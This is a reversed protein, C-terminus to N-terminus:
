LFLPNNIDIPWKTELDSCFKALEHAFMLPSPLRNGKLSRWNLRTFAICARTFDKKQFKIEDKITTKEVRYLIPRATGLSEGKAIIPQTSTIVFEMEDYFDTVSLYQEPFQEVDLLSNGKFLRIKSSKNATIFAGEINLKALTTFIADIEANMNRIKGDRLLVIRKFNIKKDKLKSILDTLLIDLDKFDDTLSADLKTSMSCLYEGYDSFCSAAATVSPKEKYSDMSRDLGVFITEGTTIGEQFLYPYGGMKAIIQVFLPNIYGSILTGNNIAKNINEYVIQQTALGRRVTLDYKLTNYLLENHKEVVWTILTDNPTNTTKEKIFKVFERNYPEGHMVLKSIFPRIEIEINLKFRNLVLKFETTFEQLSSELRQDIFIEIKKWNPDKAIKGLSFYRAFDSDNKIELYTGKMTIKPYFDNAPIPMPEDIFGKEVLNQTFEWIEFARSQPDLRSIKSAKTSARQSYRKLTELSPAEHLLSPIHSLPDKWGYIVVPQDTPEIQNKLNLQYELPSFEKGEIKDSISRSLDIEKIKVGHYKWYGGAKWIPYIAKVSKNRLFGVDKSDLDRWSELGKKKVLDNITDWITSKSYYQSSRDIELFGKGTPFIKTRVLYGRKMHFKDTLKIIDSPKWYFREDQIFGESELEHHIKKNIFNRFHELYTTNSLNIEESHQIDVNVNSILINQVYLDVNKEIKVLPAESILFHGYSAVVRDSTSLEKAILAVLKYIVYDKEENFSVSEHVPQIQTLYLKEPINKIPFYNLLYM